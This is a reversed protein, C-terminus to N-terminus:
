PNSNSEQKIRFTQTKIKVKEKNLKGGTILRMHITRRGARGEDKVGTDLRWRDIEYRGETNM